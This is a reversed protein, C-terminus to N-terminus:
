REGFPLPPLTQLYAFLARKETENMKDLAATPMMPDLALGDKRKGTALVQVFDEYTWGKM